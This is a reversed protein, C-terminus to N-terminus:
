RSVKGATRSTIGIAEQEDGTGDTRNCPKRLILIDDFTNTMPENESGYTVCPTYGVFAAPTSIRLDVAGEDVDQFVGTIRMLHDVKEWIAIILALIARRSEVKRHAAHHARRVTLARFIM